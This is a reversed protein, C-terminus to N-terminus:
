FLVKMLDGNVDILVGCDEVFKKLWSFYKERAHNGDMFVSYLSGDEKMLRVRFFVKKDSGEGVICAADVSFVTESDM